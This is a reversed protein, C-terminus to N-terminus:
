RGSRSVAADPLVCTFTSGQGPKSKISLRGGHRELIQRVIALGLGTGGTARARAKDVRYFREGLRSWEHEEIGIGQDRVSLHLWFEPGRECRITVTGGDPSYRVANRVLNSLARHLEERHGRTHVSEDGAVEITHEADSVFGQMEGQVEQALGLLAVDESDEERLEGSAELRSLELLDEVLCRMRSCQLVMQSIIQADQERVDEQLAELYGTLITLPTRIEHSVNAVFERLMRDQRLGETLDRFTVLRSQEDFTSVDVSVPHASGAFNELQLPLSTDGERLYRVLRPERALHVLPNGLDEGRLELLEQAARNFWRLDQRPGVVVAADPLADALADLEQQLRESQKQGTEGRLRLEVVTRAMDEWIRPLTQPVHDPEERMWRDLFLGQRLHTGIFVLSGAFAGWAPAAFLAGIGAGAALLLVLRLLEHVLVPPM